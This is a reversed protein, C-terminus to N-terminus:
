VAVHNTGVGHVRRRLLTARLIRPLCASLFVAFWYLRQYQASVFFAGVAYGIIGGQLGVAAQSILAVQARDARRRVRELNILSAVVAALFVVLGPIGMEAGVEVYTNHALLSVGDPGDQFRGVLAKFNMVGVGSIPHEQLMKLGAEWLDLRLDTSEADSYNPSMLRQLPSVPSLLSLPVVLAALIAFNRGRNPLRWLLFVLGAFLGVFGGRSAAVTVALLTLVICCFCYPKSWWPRPLQALCFAVPLSILASLTFYNPDGVVYGPRLALGAFTSNQFERLVYLSAFALGGVTALLTWRLRSLSNVLTMTAFFLMTLSVYIMLVSTEWAVRGTLTFFSVTALAIFVSFWRAQWTRFLPPLRTGSAIELAAYLVCALGLYKVITLDGIFRSWVPHLTLPLVTVLLYFLIM